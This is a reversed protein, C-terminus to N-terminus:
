PLPTITQKYNEVILCKKKKAESLMLKSKLGADSENSSSLMCKREEIVFDSKTLLYNFSLLLSTFM